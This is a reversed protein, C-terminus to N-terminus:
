ALSFVVPVRPEQRTLCFWSDHSPFSHPFGSFSHLFLYDITQSFMYQPYRQTSTSCIIVYSHSVPDQNSALALTLFQLFSSLPHWVLACRSPPDNCLKRLKMPQCQSARCGESPLACYSMAQQPSQASATFIFSLPTPELSHPWLALRSRHYCLQTVSTSLPSDM